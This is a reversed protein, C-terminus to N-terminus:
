ARLYRWHRLTPQGHVIVRSEVDLTDPHRLVLKLSPASAGSTGFPQLIVASGERRILGVVRRNGAPVGALYTLSDRMYATGASSYDAPTLTLTRGANELAVLMDTKPAIRVGRNSRAPPLDSLIEHWVGILSSLEQARVPGVGSTSLMLLAAVIANSRASSTM